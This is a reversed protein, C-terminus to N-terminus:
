LGVCVPFGDRRRARYLVSGRRDIRILGARRLGIHIAMQTSNPGPLLNTAGLLDLFEAETMWRRRTVVEDRM